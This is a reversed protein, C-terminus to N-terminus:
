LQRVEETLKPDIDTPPPLQRPPRKAEDQALALFSVLVFCVFLILLRTM